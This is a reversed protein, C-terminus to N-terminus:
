WDSTSYSIRPCPTGMENRPSSSWEGQLSAVAQSVSLSQWYYAVIGLIAATSILIKTMPSRAKRHLFRTIPSRASDQQLQKAEDPLPIFEPQQEHALCQELLAAVDAACRYRDAPTKAMLKHVIACLWEPINPNLERIRRPEDDAIRRLVSLSSERPFSTTGCVDHLARQGSQLPRQADM